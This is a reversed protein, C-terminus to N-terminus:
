EIVQDARQLLSRAITLDIQRAARLNVLFEFERPEEVPLEAPKAGKLIKAVFGAAQRFSEVASPGYSALGAADVFGRQGYLAPLRAKGALEVIRARHLLMMGDWPVLLAGAHEATMTAFAKDFTEPGRTEVAQLQVGLSRAATRAEKLALAHGPNAPNVLLALRSAQPAIQKLLELQKGILASTLFSTGTVNGGPRALSAVLGNGVPDGVSVMVIPITRTAQMAAVVNQAAPAVIVEARRRVLEAAQSPLRDYQGESSLHEITVNRGDVFGLEGLAKTFAGWLRAGAPDSLPVNSLVGIRHGTAAQQAGAPRPVALLGGALSVLFTRRDMVGKRGAANPAALAVVKCWGVPSSAPSKRVRGARFM